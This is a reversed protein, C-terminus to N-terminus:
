GGVVSGGDQIVGHGVGGTSLPLGRHPDQFTPPRPLPPWRILAKAPEFGSCVAEKSAEQCVTCIRIRPSPHSVPAGLLDVTPTGEGVSVLCWAVGCAAASPGALCCRQFTADLPDRSGAGECVVGDM